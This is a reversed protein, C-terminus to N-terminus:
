SQTSLSCTVTNRINLLSATSLVFSMVCFLHSYEGDSPLSIKTFLYRQLSGLAFELKAKNNVTVINSSATEIITCVLKIRFVATPPDFECPVRPDYKSLPSVSVVQPQQEADEEDNEEEEDELEEDEHITQSINGRPAFLERNESAERLAPPIDHGFNLIHSIEQFALM